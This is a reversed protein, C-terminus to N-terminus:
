TAERTKNYPRCGLRDRGPRSGARLRPRTGTEGLRAPGPAAAAGRDFARARSPRAGLPARRRGRAEIAPHLFENEQRLHSACLLLADLQGLTADLEAADATDLWGVYMLTDTMFLRLAKHISADIDYRPTDAAAIAAPAPREIPLTATM